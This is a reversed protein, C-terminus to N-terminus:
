TTTPRPRRHSASIPQCISASTDLDERMFMKRLNKDGVTKVFSLEPTLRDLCLINAIRHCSRNVTETCGGDRRADKHQVKDEM